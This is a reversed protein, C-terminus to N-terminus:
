LDNNIRGSQKQQVLRVLNQFTGGYLSAEQLIQISEISILGENKLNHIEQVLNDKEPHQGLFTVLGTITVGSKWSSRRLIEERLSKFEKQPQSERKKLENFEESKEVKNEEKAKIPKQQNKIPIIKSKRSRKKIM